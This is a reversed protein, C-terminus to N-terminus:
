ARVVPLEAWRTTYRPSQRAQKGAWRARPRGAGGFRLSGAGFSANVADLVAMLREARALAEADAFLPRSSGSRLGLESLMVGARAYAFGSRYLGAALRRAAAAIVRTDATPEPLRVERAGGYQPELPRGANTRVFVGVRSALAGERRLKAAAAAAFATVAEELEDARWIPEGFSRTHRVHKRRPRPGQFPLCPTGRLELATRMLPVGFRRRLLEPDIAALEAATAVGLGALRRALRRGVGWVEGAPFRSLAAAREEPPLATWDCVGALAPGQKALLNALKALTRTPAIGVSVVLGLRRRVGERLARARAALTAPPLGTWDLFCEDISYVEYRPASAALLAMLRASLDGYLAPNGSRAVVGRAEAERRVRGWSEAMPVGLARAEASRSVVCGDNNSLVVLPRGALAPDFVRECSAFFNNCDVIAIRSM